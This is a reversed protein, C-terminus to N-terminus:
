EVVIEFVKRAVNYCGDTARYVIEYRGKQTFTYTESPKVAKYRGMPDRVLVDFDVNGQGNQETLTYGLINVSKGAKVKGEYYGNVTFVPDKDFDVKVYVTYLTSKNNEDTAQLQIQYVGYQSLVFKFDETLLSKGRVTQGDPAVVSLYVFSNLAFVDNAKVAEVTYEAGIKGKNSLQESFQFLPGATDNLGNRQLTYSFSQNCIKSVIFETSSSVSEVKFSVSVKRSEFGSFSTGDSWKSVPAIMEGAANKFAFNFADFIVDITRYELNEYEANGCNSRYKGKIYVASYLKKEDNLKLTVTDKTLDSFRLIVSKDSDAADRITVSFGEAGIYDSNFGFSLGFQYGSLSYPITFGYDKSGGDLRYVLGSTLLVTQKDFSTVLYDEVNKKNGAVILNQENSKVTKGDITASYYVALSKDTSKVEYEGGAKVGNVYTEAEIRRGSSYDIAYASLSLKDGIFVNSQIDNGYFIIRNVNVNIPYEKVETNGVYDTITLEVRATASDIFYGRTDAQLLKEGSWVKIDVTLNGSGGTVSYEPLNYYSMIDAREDDFGDVIFPNLKEVVVIGFSKVIEKGFNDVTRYRLRYEGVKDPIFKLGSIKDTVDTDGYSLTVKVDSDSLTKNKIVEPLSYQKGVEGRPLEDYNTDLIIANDDRMVNVDIDSVSTNAIKTLYMGGNVCDIFEIKLYVEGTTFGQWEYGAPLNEEDLMSLVQSHEVAGNYNKYVAQENFDYSINFAGSEVKETYNCGCETGYTSYVGGSNWTRGIFLQKNVSVLQYSMGDSWQNQEWKIRINVSSDYVDILSVQVKSLGSNAHDTYFELLTDNKTFKKLDIVGSYYASASSNAANIYIAPNGKLSKGDADLCYKDLAGDTRVYNINQMASLVNSKDPESSVTFDNEIKEGNIQSVFKLNYEGSENFLVTNETSVIGSPKTVTLSANYREGLYYGYADYVVTTGLKVTKEVTNEYVIRKEDIVTFTLSDSEEEGFVNIFSYRLEYEGSKALFYKEANDKYDERIEGDALVAVAYNDYRAAANEITLEPVTITDGAVFTKDNINDSFNFTTKPVVAYVFLETINEGRLVEYKGVSTLLIKGNEAAVRNGDPDKVTGGDVSYYDLLLAYEVKKFSFNKDDEKKCSIMIGAVVAFVTCLLLFGITKKYNKNM